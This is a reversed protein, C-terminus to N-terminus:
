AYPDEAVKLIKFSQLRELGLSYAGEATVSLTKSYVGHLLHGPYPPLAQERRPTPASPRPDVLYEIRVDVEAIMEFYVKGDPDARADGLEVDSMDEVGIVWASQSGPIEPAHLLDTAIENAEIDEALRHELEYRLGAIREWFDDIVALNPM